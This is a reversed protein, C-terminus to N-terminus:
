MDFFAFAGTRPLVKIIFKNGLLNGCLPIRPLGWFSNLSFMLPLYVAYSFMLTLYVRYDPILPHATELAHWEQAAIWEGGTEVSAAASSTQAASGMWPPSAWSAREVGQWLLQPARIVSCTLPAPLRASLFLYNFCCTVILAPLFPFSFSILFSCPILGQLFCLWFRFYVTRRLDFTWAAWSGTKSLSAWSPADAYFPM